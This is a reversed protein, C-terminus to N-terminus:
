FKPTNLLEVGDPKNFIFLRDDAKGNIEMELFETDSRNGAWDFLTLARITYDKADVAVVIRTVSGSKERPELSLLIRGDMKGSEDGARPPKIRFLERLKKGGALFLAPSRENIINGLPEAMARKDAPYYIYVTRGDSVVLQEVPTKYEWRMKLPKLISVTGTSKETTGMSGNHFLQRFNSNFGNIESFRREVKEILAPTIEVHQSKAAAPAASLLATLLFIATTKLM